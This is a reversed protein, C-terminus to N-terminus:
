NENYIGIFSVKGTTFSANLSSATHQAGFTIFTNLHVGEEGRGKALGPLEEETQSRSRGRGCRKRKVVRSKRAEEIELEEMIVGQSYVDMSFMAQTLSTHEGGEEEDEEGDHEDSELAIEEEGVEEMIVSQSYMSVGGMAQTLGSHNEEEEDGVGSEEELEEKRVEEKDDNVDGEEKTVHEGKSDEM